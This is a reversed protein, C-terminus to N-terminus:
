RITRQAEALIIWPVLTDGGADSLGKYPEKGPRNEGLEKEAKELLTKAATTEGMQHLTMAKFSLFTTTSITFPHKNKYNDSELPLQEFEDFKKLAEQYQGSRFLTVGLIITQAKSSHYREPEARPANRIEQAKNLTTLLENAETQSDFPAMCYISVARELIFSSGTFTERGKIAYELLGKRTTNFGDMNGVWLQLNALVWNVFTDDRMFPCSEELLKIAEESRGLSALCRAMDGIVGATGRDEIGETRSLIPAAIEGHKVGEEFKKRFYCQLILDARVQLTYYHENGLLKERKELLIHLYKWHEEKLASYFYYRELWQEANMTSTAVEGDRERLSEVVVKQIRIADPRKGSSFYITALSLQADTTIAHLPGLDTLAIVILQNLHNIALETHGSTKLANAMKLSASLTDVHNEGHEALAEKWASEAKALAIKRLNNKDLMSQDKGDVAQVPEQKEVSIANDYQALEWKSLALEQSLIGFHKFSHEVLIKQIEVAEKHKQQGFYAKAISRLASELMVHNSKIPEVLSREELSLTLALQHDSVREANQILRRLALLSDQHEMGKQERQISLAQQRLAISKGYLALGDYTGALVELLMAHREPQAKLEEDLKNAAVDLAEVVTVKRGDMDPNPRKFVESLLRSIAEADKLAIDKENQQQVSEKLREEALIEAKRARLAQWSSVVVAVVLLTAFAVLLLMARRHRRAFKSLLYASSPPKATVPEDALFRGIDVALAAATDYRREKSKDMAKMVIWDLESAISKITQGSSTIASDSKVGLVKSQTTIRISPRLPEEERIIRRMEEYGAKILTSPDFPPAGTIMEYLIVGLAYIDSRTDLDIMGVSAQEPSMYAPTGIWQEAKTRLTHDTLEGDIAKAIGFDIVKVVPKSEVTVVLVNSPKIDRHIVGKQHAHNVAACVNMYLRLKDNTTLSEDACYQTIMRGEVLEMAFYPRGTDTMGADLVKAINIHNMRSLAHKEADFRALVEDTDMGAKIVKVAVTRKLPISQEAQWVVGFGGEGLKRVLQYPGVMDGISEISAHSVKPMMKVAVATGTFYDDAAAADQLLRIVEEKISPDGIEFTDLAVMREDLPLEMLEFFLDESTKYEM